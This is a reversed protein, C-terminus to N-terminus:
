ARRDNQADYFAKWYDSRFIAPAADKSGAAILSPKGPVSNDYVVWTDALPMYLKFFNRAGRRYRRRIIIEPVHHGGVRVREAVRQVALEPSRLYLFLLHFRYRNQKLEDIWSAYSLSALTSEFAFSRRSSALSRLRKLMIRGADFAAREPNFASLGLAITDANVYELLNLADRLLFPALTSKGAGNPGAIVILQPTAESMLGDSAREGTGNFASKGTLM